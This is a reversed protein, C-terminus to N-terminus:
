NFYYFKKLDDKKKGVLKDIGNYSNNIGEDRSKDEIDDIFKIMNDSLNLEDTDLHDLYQVPLGQPSLIDELEEMVIVMKGDVIEASHFEVFGDLARKSHKM